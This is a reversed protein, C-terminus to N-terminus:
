MLMSIMNTYKIYEYTVTKSPFYTCININISSNM